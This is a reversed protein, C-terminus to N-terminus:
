ATAVKEGRRVCALAPDRVARAAGDDALAEIAPGAGHLPGCLRQKAEHLQLLRIFDHHAFLPGCNHVLMVGWAQECIVRSPGGKKRPKRRLRTMKTERGLISQDGRAERVLDWLHDWSDQVDDDLDDLSGSQIHTHSLSYLLPELLLALPKHSASPNMM